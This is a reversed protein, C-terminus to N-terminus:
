TFIHEAGKDNTWIMARRGPEADAIEDFIDYAFNFTEPYKLKYYNLVGHEDYGEEVFRENINLM